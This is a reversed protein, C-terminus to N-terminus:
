IVYPQVIVPLFYLRRRSVGAAGPRRHAKQKYFGARHGLKNASWEWFSLLMFNRFIQASLTIATLREVTNAVAAIRQSSCALFAEVVFADEHQATFAVLTEVTDVTLASQEVADVTLASHVAASFCAHEVLVADTLFTLLLEHQADLTLSTLVAENSAAM